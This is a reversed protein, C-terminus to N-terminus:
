VVMHLGSFRCVRCSLGLCRKRCEDPPVVDDVAAALYEALNEDGLHPGACADFIRECSRCFGHNCFSTRDCDDRPVVPSQREGEFFPNNCAQPIGTLLTKRLYGFPEARLWEIPIGVAGSLAQVAALQDYCNVRVQRDAQLYAWLHFKGGRGHAGYAPIAHNSSYILGHDQHCYLTIRRLVECPNQMGQLSVTGTLFRLVESWVGVSKYFSEPRSLLVFVELRTAPALAAVHAPTASELLWDADGAYRAIGLGPRPQSVVVEHRGVRLPVRGELRLAGLEGRLVGEPAVGEAREIQITVKATISRGAEFASPRKSGDGDPLSAADEASWHPVLRPAGVPQRLRAMGIENELSIEVVRAVISSM